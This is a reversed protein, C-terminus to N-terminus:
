RTFADYIVFIMVIIIVFNISYDFLSKPRLFESIPDNDKRIENRLTEEEIIKAREEETLHTKM